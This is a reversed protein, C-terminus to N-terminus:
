GAQSKGTTVESGARPNIKALFPHRRAMVRIRTPTSIRSARSPRGRNTASAPPLRSAVKLAPSSGARSATSSLRSADEGCRAAMGRNVKAPTTSAAPPAGSRMIWSNLADTPQSGPPMAPTAIADQAKKVANEPAEPTVIRASPPNINGM